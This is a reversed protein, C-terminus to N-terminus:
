FHVLDFTQYMKLVSLFYVTWSDRCLMSNKAPFAAFVVGDDFGMMKKILQPRPLALSGFVHVVAM